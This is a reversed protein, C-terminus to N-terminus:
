RGSGESKVLGSKHYDETMGVRGRSWGSERTVNDVQCLMVRYPVLFVFTLLNM